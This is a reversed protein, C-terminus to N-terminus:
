LNYLFQFQEKLLLKYWSCIEIIKIFFNILKIIEKSTCVNYNYMITLDLQTRKVYKQCKNLKRILDFTYM